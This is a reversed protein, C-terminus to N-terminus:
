RKRACILSWGKKMIELIMEDKILCEIGIYIVLGVIVEIVTGFPTAELKHSIILVMCLMIVSSFINKIVSKGVGDLKVKTRIYSYQILVSFASCLVTALAAGLYGFRPIFLANCIINVIAAGYYATTLIHTQNIATLYQAGFINSLANLICIPSLVIIAYATAAYEKGLYWPMCDGSIAILGGMMPIALFMAFKITKSLYVSIAEDNKNAHLNALRPMMVTGLATIIALPINIIKEAYDYYAVQSASGTIKNLMIKDFQLYLTTAVQPIFLKLAPVIHAFVKKLSPLEFTIYKKLIPYVSVSTIFTSFSFLAFYIWLDNDTKVFAFIGVVTIFKALFNRLSVIKMDEFGIFVWSVDLFQAVILPYQILYFTKNKLFFSIPIYIMSIIVLFIVRLTFIESFTKKVNTKNDRDYAIQRYGYSQLGFLGFTTIISIVSNIYSYTGLSNSSLVRALYPATILPVIIIFIQYAANYMYNKILRNM